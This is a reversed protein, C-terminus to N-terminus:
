MTHECVSNGSHIKTSHVRRCERWGSSKCRMCVQKCLLNRFVSVRIAYAEERIKVTSTQNESIVAAQQKDPPGQNLGSPCSRSKSKHPTAKRRLSMHFVSDSEKASTATSLPPVDDLSSMKEFVFYDSDVSVLFILDLLYEIVRHCTFRRICRVYSVLSTGSDESNRQQRQSTAKTIM